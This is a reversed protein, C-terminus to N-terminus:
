KISHTLKLTNVTPTKVCEDPARLPEQLRTLALVNEAIANKAVNTWRDSIEGAALAKLLDIISNAQKASTVGRLWWRKALVERYM